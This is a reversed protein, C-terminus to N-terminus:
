WYKMVTNRAFGTLLSIQYSSHGLLKLKKFHKKDNDFVCKKNNSFVSREWYFKGVCKKSCFSHATGASKKMNKVRETISFPEKCHECTYHWWKQDETLFRNHEKEKNQKPTLVQLNDIDDNTKDDDIHDVEFESSLLYKLKVCMLYRAYSITTRDLGSNFLVVNRRNESNVVIYGKRWFSKFPEELKIIM